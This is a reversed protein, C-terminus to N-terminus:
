RCAELIDLQGPHPAAPKAPPPPLQGVGLLALLQAVSVAPAGVPGAESSKARCLDIVQSLMQDCRDLGALVPELADMVRGTTGMTEAWEGFEVRLAAHILRRAQERATEGSM